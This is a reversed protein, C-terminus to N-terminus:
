FPTAVSLHFFDSSVYLHKSLIGAHSLCVSLCVSPRVDRSPMDARHMADRPIVATTTSAERRQGHM